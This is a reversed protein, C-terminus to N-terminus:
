VHRWTIKKVVDRITVLHVGFVNGIERYSWEGTAYMERILPIDSESLKASWQSEGQNITHGFQFGQAALDRGDYEFHCRVCMPEYSTILSPDQGHQWAWHLAQGECQVCSYDKALGFTGRVVAHIHLYEPSQSVYPEYTGVGAVGECVELM